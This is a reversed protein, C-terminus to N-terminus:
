EITDFWHELKRSGYFDREALRILQRMLIDGCADLRSMILDMEDDEAESCNMVSSLQINSNEIKNLIKNMRKYAKDLRPVSADASQRSNISKLINIMETFAADAERGLQLFESAGVDKSSVTPTSTSKDPESDVADTDNERHLLIVDSENKIHTSDPTQTSETKHAYASLLYGGSVLAFSGIIALITLLVKKSTANKPASESHSDHM